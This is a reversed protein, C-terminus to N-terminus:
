DSRPSPSAPSDPEDDNAAKDADASKFGLVDRMRQMLSEIDAPLGGRRESARVFAASVDAGKVSLWPVDPWEDGSRQAATIKALEAHAQDLRDHTTPSVIERVASKVAVVVVVEYTDM